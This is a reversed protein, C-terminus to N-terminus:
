LSALAPTKCFSCAAVKKHFLSHKATLLLIWTDGKNIKVKNWGWSKGFISESVLFTVNM